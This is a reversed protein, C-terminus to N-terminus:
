PGIARWRLRFLTPGYRAPRDVEHLCQPATNRASLFASARQPVALTGWWEEDVALRDIV